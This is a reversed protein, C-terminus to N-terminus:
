DHKDEMVILRGEGMVRFFRPNEYKKSADLVKQAASSPGIISAIRKVLSINIEQLNMEKM